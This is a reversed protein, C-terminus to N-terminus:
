NMVDACMDRLVAIDSQLDAFRQDNTQGARFRAYKQQEIVARRFYGFCLFYSFDPVAIGRRAAYRTIAENRTMVGPSASPMARLSKFAPPDSEEVWFSITCALDILPDGVTSMEWDLVGKLKAAGDADWILNDMKFDNHVISAGEGDPFKEMLWDAVASFDVIDDTRAANLRKIWGEIQRRRYGEPRGFDSLGAAGVDVAHLDAQADILANFYKGADSEPIDPPFARRIIVGKLREMLCFSFGVAGEDECLVFARPALPYVKHLQSLVRYERGMDHASKSKAGSPPRKLIFERAGFKVLYTLNSHGAPFQFLDAEGGLGVIQNRLYSSLLTVDIHDDSVVVPEDIVAM